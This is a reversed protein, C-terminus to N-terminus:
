IKHEKIRWIRTMRTGKKVWGILGVLIKDGKIRWIRTMRTGKKEGM